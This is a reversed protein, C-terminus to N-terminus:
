TGKNALELQDCLRNASDVSLESPTHSGNRRGIAEDVRASRSANPDIADVISNLQVFAFNTPEWAAHQGSQKCLRPFLEDYFRHAVKARDSAAIGFPIADTTVLNYKANPRLRQLRIEGNVKTASRANDDHDGFPDREVGDLFFQAAAYGPAEVYFSDLGPWAGIRWNGFGQWGLRYNGQVDTLTWADHTSLQWLNGQWQFALLAVPVPEGTDADVVRGSFPGSAFLMQSPNAWLLSTIFAFGGVLAWRLWWRRTEVAKSTTSNWISIFTAVLIWLPLCFWINLLIM